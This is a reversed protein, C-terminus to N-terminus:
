KRRGKKPAPAKAIKPPTVFKVPHNKRGPSGYPKKDAM